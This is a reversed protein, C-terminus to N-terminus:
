FICGCDAMGMLRGSEIVRQRARVCRADEDDALDCIGNAADQM